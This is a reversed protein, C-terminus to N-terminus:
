SPDAPLSWWWGDKRRNSEIGLTDKARKAASWSLGAGEIEEQLDKVWMGGEALLTKLLEAAQEQKTEKRPPEPAGAFEVGDNEVRLGVPEPFRALNSKAVSLRKWDRRAPDPVDLAWVVRAPQALASSGRLRELAVGDGVDLLSRKRLHHAVLVPIGTDRALQALWLVVDIAESSNEDKRHAGRLSDVVVLRVDPTIAAEVLQRHKPRDLQIDLLPDGPSRLSTLPLGWKQARELNLAQAAESECWLVAGLEGTFESGDPWRDGRLYCAAVRLALASKGVGAEGALIVLMGEPLWNPWAWTVPEITARLDEWTSSSHTAELLPGQREAASRAIRRVETEDLPPQCRAENEALLAAELATPSLGARLLSCALRFLTDNRRGKPIVAATPTVNERGGRDVLLSQVASPLLAVEVVDPHYGADWVYRHGSAHLSPPVVVYGGNARVDIGGGLKGASNHIDADPARFLLHEGGGGTHCIVTEDEFGYTQRLCEWTDRGSRDDHRDLDVVVLESPGCAVGINADPWCEWWERIREPDTTASKLGDHTRPHKGPSGCGRKGCSCGGDVPTHVPFVAWDMAAYSLAAQAMDHDM